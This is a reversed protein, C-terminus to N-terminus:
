VDMGKRGERKRRVVEESDVISEKVGMRATRATAEEAEARTIRCAAVAARSGKEEKAGTGDGTRGIVDLEVRASWLIKRGEKM